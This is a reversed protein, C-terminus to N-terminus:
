SRTPPPNFVHEEATILMSWANSPRIWDGDIKGQSNAECACASLSKVYPRALIFARLTALHFEFPLLAVTQPQYVWPSIFERM